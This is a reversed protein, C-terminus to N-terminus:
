ASLICALPYPVLCTPLVRPSGPLCAWIGLNLVPPGKGTEADAEGM